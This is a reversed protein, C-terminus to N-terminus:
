RSRRSLIPTTATAGASKKLVRPLDADAFSSAFPVGRRTSDSQQACARARNSARPAVFVQVRFINNRVPCWGDRAPRADCGCLKSTDWAGYIARGDARDVPTDRRGRLKM